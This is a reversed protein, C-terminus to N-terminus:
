RWVISLLGAIALYAGAWLSLKRLCTAHRLEWDAIRLAIHEMYNTARM